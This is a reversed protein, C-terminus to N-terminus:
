AITDAFCQFDADTGSLSTSRTRPIGCGGFAMASVAIMTVEDVKVPGAIALACGVTPIRCNTSISPMAADDDYGRAGSPM